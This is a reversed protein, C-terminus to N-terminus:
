SLALRIFSSVTLDKDLQKVYEEVSIKSDKIFAQSMLTNEKFFKNLKGMAIKEVMNEPKGEQRIQDKAVELERDILDQDVNDKNLAVPSMAAVQMAIDKSVEDVGEINKSMEVVTALRNGPHIYSKLYAGEKCEYRGLEIKEGIKGVQDTLLDDVSKGDIIFAKLDEATKISNAVAVDLLQQTFAIFDENKAVFDTECNVMIAAGFTNDESVKSLVVGDGAERDSRKAAVKQGKKRLYDIAKEFDGDSEVLAKKCDMMGAGTQKRLKNVEAATINAM